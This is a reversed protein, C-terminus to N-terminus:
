VSEGYRATDVVWRETEPNWWIEGIVYGGNNSCVTISGDFIYGSQIKSLTEINYTYAKLIDIDEINISRDSKAAFDDM